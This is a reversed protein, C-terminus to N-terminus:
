YYQAVRDQSNPIYVNFADPQCFKLRGNRLFCGLYITAMKRMRLKQTNCFLQIFADLCASPSSPHQLGTSTPHLPKSPWDSVGPFKLIAFFFLMKSAAVFAEWQFLPPTASSVVQVSASAQDGWVPDNLPLHRINLGSVGM